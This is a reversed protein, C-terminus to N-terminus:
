TQAGKIPYQVLNKCQYANIIIIVAIIIIIRIIVTQFIKLRSDSSGGGQLPPLDPSFITVM